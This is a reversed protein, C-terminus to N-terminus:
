FRGVCRVDQDFYAFTGFTGFYLSVKLFSKLVQLKRCTATLLAVKM